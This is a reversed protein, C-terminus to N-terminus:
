MLSGRSGKRAFVGMLADRVEFEELVAGFGYCRIKGGLEERVAEFDERGMEGVREDQLIMAWAMVPTVEGDLPLRHSLDLLKVMDPLTLDPPMDHPYPIDPHSEIYSRPPCTAMLAHGGLCRTGGLSLLGTTPVTTTSARVMLMQMHDMCPRELALVFEVGIQNYDLGGNPQMMMQPQQQGWQGGDSPVPPPLAQPANPPSTFDTSNSGPQYGGSVSGNSSHESSELPVQFDFPIGHLRLIEKLRQNEETVIHRERLTVTLQETLGQVREELSKIYMEKRERHTRQAQRNLEQRRNAPPKSDPKPGRKKPLQGDRTTATKAGPLYRFSGINSQPSTSNHASESGARTRHDKSEMDSVFGTSSSGRRSSGSIESLCESSSPPYNVVATSSSSYASWSPVTLVDSWLLYHNHSM